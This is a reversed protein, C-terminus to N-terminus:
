GTYAPQMKVPTAIPAVNRPATVSTPVTTAPTSTTTTSVQACVQTPVVTKVLGFDGDGGAFVYIFTATNAQVDLADFSSNPSIYEGLAVRTKRTADTPYAGVPLTATGEEHNAVDPMLLEFEDAGALTGFAAQGGQTDTANRFTIRSTGPDPCSLDDAFVTTSMVGVDGAWDPMNIVLTQADVDLLTVQGTLWDGAEGCVMSSDGIRLMHDGPATSLTPAIVVEGSAVTVDDLCITHDQLNNADYHWADVVTLTTLDAAGAPMVGLPIGFAATVAAAALIKPFKM